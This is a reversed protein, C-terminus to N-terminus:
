LNPHGDARIAEQVMAIANIVDTDPIDDDGKNHRIHQFIQETDCTYPLNTNWDDEVAFGVGVTFFKPFGVVAQGGTGLKVRYRRYDEGVPPTMVVAASGDGSLPVVPTKDREGRRELVMEEGSASLM